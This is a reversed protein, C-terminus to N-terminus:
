VGHYDRYWDVFRPIGQDITTEPKFGFDKKMASIDAYTEKIDGPEMPAMELKAKRGVAKEIVEIFRLLPESRNNGINYLRHPPGDANGGGDEPPTTSSSISWM